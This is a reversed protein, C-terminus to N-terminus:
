NIHILLLDILLYTNIIKKININTNYQNNFILAIIWVLHYVYIPHKLNINLLIVSLYWNLKKIKLANLIMSTLNRFNGQVNSEFEIDPIVIPKNTNYYIIKKSKNYLALQNDIHTFIKNKNILKIIKEAGQKSIIYGTTTLPYINKQLYLNENIKIKNKNNLSLCLFTCYFSIIDFNITDLKQILQNLNEIDIKKVDDELVLYYKADNDKILKKWINIHSLACGIIGYNCTLKQCLIRSYKEIEDKSLDKGYIAPFREYQINYQNLLRNINELREKDKDLNIVITKLM